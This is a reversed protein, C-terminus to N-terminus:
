EDLEMCEFTTTNGVRKVFRVATDKPGMCKFTAILTAAVMDAAEVDVTRIPQEPVPASACGAIALIALMGSVMLSVKVVRAQAEGAANM